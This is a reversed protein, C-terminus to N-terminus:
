EGFISQKIRRLLSIKGLPIRITESLENEGSVPTKLVLISEGEKKELASPVGLVRKIEGGPGPWSVDLLAGSELAHKAIAAKGTYDLGRAELKEYRLSSGELQAESLILRREIRAELEDREPKSLRMNKLVQYFKQKITDAEQGAATEEGSKEEGADKLFEATEPSGLNPFSHRLFGSTGFWTGPTKSPPQAIIDVGAKRLARVAEARDGSSLLYVGPALTRRILSALPRAEALYRRDEALNLIIGQHLSVGAYRTEWDKLTWCLTEDLRNLSLRNLIDIMGAAAMGQDFGRVASERTLEFCVDAGDPSMQSASIKVACFAALAMADAFAIEPYLIFSFPTNMVIVPGAADTKPHIPVNWRSGRKVLLGSKQMAALFPEFPLWIKDDFLRVGWVNGAGWDEKGVLEMLRRLTIEPYKKESGILAMFRHITSVVKRLRSRYLGATDEASENLCLYVGAAWYAQREVLPLDCFAAIKDGCPLLSSGEVSFLELQLLTKLALELDLDPFVKKGEELVKKRLGRFQAEGEIRLPEEESYAYLFALLAALVRSDSICASPPEEASESPVESELSSSPFLPGIDEVFPALVKELVPNLALCLTGGTQIRSAAAASPFRQVPQSRNQAEAPPKRFRYLILREELNLVLGHLEAATLEKAFFNELEGPAPENLMAVAAIIKHDQEDIYAAITKRIDDRSLLKFLDDMLRQKSFPTKINGFVSRLLEFFGNDPLTMLASKWDDVSRFSSSREKM